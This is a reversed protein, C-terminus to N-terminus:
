AQFFLFSMFVFSLPDGAKTRREQNEVMFSRRFELGLRSLYDWTLDWSPVYDIHLSTLSSEPQYELFFLSSFDHNM